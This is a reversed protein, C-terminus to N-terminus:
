SNVAAHILLCVYFYFVESKTTWNKKACELAQSILIELWLRSSSKFTVEDLQKM